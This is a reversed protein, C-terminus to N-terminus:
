DRPSPSTYLLCAEVSQVGSTDASRVEAAEEPAPPPVSAVLARLDLTADAANDAASPPAMSPRVLASLAGLDFEEAAAETSKKKAEKSM